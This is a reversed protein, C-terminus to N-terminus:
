KQRLIVESKIDKLVDLLDKCEGTKKLASCAQSISGRAVKMYDVKAPVSLNETKASDKKDASDEIEESINEIFDYVDESVSYLGSILGLAVLRNESDDKAFKTLLKTSRDALNVLDDRFRIM